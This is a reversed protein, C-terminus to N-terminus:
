ALPRFGGNATKKFRVYYNLISFPSHLINTKYNEM